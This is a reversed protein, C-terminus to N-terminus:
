GLFGNGHFHRLLSAEDTVGRQYLQIMEAAMETAAASAGNVGRELCVDDLLRKLFALENPEFPNMVAAPTMNEAEM